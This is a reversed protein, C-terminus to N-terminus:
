MWFRSPPNITITLIKNGFTTWAGDISVPTTWTSVDRPTQSGNLVIYHSHNTQFFYNNVETGDGYDAQISLNGTNTNTIPYWCINRYTPSGGLLTSFTNNPNPLYTGSTGIPKLYPTVSFSFAGDVTAGVNDVILAEVTYSCTDVVGFRM